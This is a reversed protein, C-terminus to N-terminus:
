PAVPWQVDWPFGAQATIDRLAQRYTAWAQADVPADPLQTWDCDALRKNRDARVDAVKTNTRETIKQESAPSVLWEQLCKTGDFVVSSEANQTHDIPPQPALEITYIGQENLQEQTPELPLSINPHEIRWQNISIDSAVVAGDSVLAYM